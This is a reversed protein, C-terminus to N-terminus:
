MQATARGTTYDGQRRNVGDDPAGPEGALPQGPADCRVAAALALLLRYVALLRADAPLRSRADSKTM